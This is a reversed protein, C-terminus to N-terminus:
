TTKVKPKTSVKATPVHSLKSQLLIILTLLIPLLIHYGAISAQDDKVTWTTQQM